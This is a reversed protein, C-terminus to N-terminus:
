WILYLLLLIIIIVTNNYFYWFISDIIYFYSYIMQVKLINIFFFMIFVIISFVIVSLLKLSSELYIWKILLLTFIIKNKYLKKNIKINYFYITFAYVLLWIESFWTYIVINKRWYM